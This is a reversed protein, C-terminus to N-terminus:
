GRKKAIRTPTFKVAVKKTDVFKNIPKELGSREGPVAPAKAKVKTVTKRIKGGAATKKAM